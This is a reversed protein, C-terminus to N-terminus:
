EQHRKPERRSHKHLSVDESGMGQIMGPESSRFRFESEETRTGRRRTKKPRWTRTQSSGWGNFQPTQTGLVPITPSLIRTTQQFQHLLSKSVGVSFYGLGRPGKHFQVGWFGVGERRLMPIPPCLELASHSFRPAWKPREM